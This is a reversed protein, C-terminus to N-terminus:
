AAATACPDLHRLVGVPYTDEVGDAWRVRYQQGKLTGDDVVRTVMGVISLDDPDSSNRNWLVLDGPNFQYVPM